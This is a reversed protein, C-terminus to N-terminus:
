VLAATIGAAAFTGMAGAAMVAPTIFAAVKTAFGGVTSSVSEFAGSLGGAGSLGYSLNGAEMALVRTLPIGAATADFMHRLAAFLAMSQTSGLGAAASFEATAVKAAGVAGVQAAAKANVADIV